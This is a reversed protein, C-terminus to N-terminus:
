CTLHLAAAVKKEGLLRNYKNCVSETKDVILEVGLSSVHNRTAQPVSMLGSAGTGVVLVELGERLVEKLDEVNLVHGERRWWSSVSGDQLILIDSTHKEGVVM